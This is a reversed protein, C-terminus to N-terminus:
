CPHWRFFDSYVPYKLSFIIIFYFILSLLSKNHTFKSTAVEWLVLAMSVMCFFILLVMIECWGLRLPVYFVLLVSEEAPHVPCVRTVLIWTAVWLFQNTLHEGWVGPNLRLLWCELKIANKACTFLQCMALNPGLSKIRESEVNWLTPGDLKLGQLPNRNEYLEDRGVM